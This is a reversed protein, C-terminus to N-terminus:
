TLGNKDALWEPVYVVAGGDPERDLEILSKPLWSKQGGNNILVAKDTEHEIKCTITVSNEM